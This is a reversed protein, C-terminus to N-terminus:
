GTHPTRHPALGSSFLALFPSPPLAWMPTFCACQSITESDNPRNYSPMYHNLRVGSEVKKKLLDCKNLFLVINVHALLKNEIVSKWLQFSDELRNVRADELLQQDFASIPALFIIANVAHGPGWHANLLARFTRPSSPSPSLLPPPLSKGDDFYPAWAQRQNRAGGVDYIVWEVGRFESNKALTFKHEVVGTTKLRAKLVDDATASGGCLFCPLYM